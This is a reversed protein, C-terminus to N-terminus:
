GLILQFSGLLGAPAANGSEDFIRDENLSVFYEGAVYGGAGPPLVFAEVTENVGEGPGGAFGNVSAQYGNPGTVTVTPLGDNAFRISDRNDQYVLLFQAEGQQNVQATANSLRATPALTDTGTDVSEDIAVTFTGLVQGPAVNGAQDTLSDPELIVTYQGNDQSGWDRTPTGESEPFIGHLTNIETVGNGDGTFAVAIQDYGNPGTVRIRASGALRQDDTYRNVFSLSDDPGNFVLPESGNPNFQATPPTVDGSVDIQTLSVESLRFNTASGPESDGVWAWITASTAGTPAVFQRTVAEANPDSGNTDVIVEGIENGFSDRFDIGVSAYPQGSESPFKRYADVSFSYLEGGELQARRWISSETSSIIALENTAPDVFVGADLNNSTWSEGNWNVIDESQDYQFVGNAQLVQGRGVGPTVGDQPLWTGTSFTSDSESEYTVGAIMINDVTLNRDFGIEPQYLDNNFRVSVRNADISQDTEYVYPKFTQEATWSQVEQGDILLSFSEEGTDGWARVTIDLTDQFRNRSTVDFAVASEISGSQVELDWDGGQSRNGTLDTSAAVDAGTLKALQAVLKQGASGQGTECGYLLIDAKSTFATAWSRVQDQNSALTQENVRQDGLLLAGSQGHTVIHLQSINSRNALFNSIQGIMDQQPDLLVFESDNSLGAVLVDADSLDGDIFVISPAAKTASMSVSSATVEADAVLTGVDAAVGADAALMIRPELKNTQWSEHSMGNRRPQTNRSREKIPFRFLM